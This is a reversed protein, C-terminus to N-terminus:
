AIGEGIGVLYSVPSDIGVESLCQDLNGSRKICFFVQSEIEVIRNVCEVGRGDIQTEGNKWPRQKTGCLGSYFEMSQEIQTAVNWGENMDRIALEVIDIYEIDQYWLRTGEIDHITAVQIKSPKETHILGSCKEDDSGLAIGHVLAAVGM